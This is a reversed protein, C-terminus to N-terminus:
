IIIIELVESLITVSITLHNKIYGANNDEKYSLKSKRLILPYVKEILINKSTVRTKEDQSDATEFNVESYDM